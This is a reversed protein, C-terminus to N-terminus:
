NYERVEDKFHSIKDLLEKITNKSNSLIYDPDIDTWPKLVFAREEIKPHPIILTNTIINKNSYTLIDIDIERPQNREKDINIRGLSNEIYQTSQLLMKPNLSTKILIVMNLFYDQNINYMPQTEYVKSKDIIQIESNRNILIISKKINDLRNGKNSGISLFVNNM